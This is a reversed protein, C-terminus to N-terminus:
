DTTVSHPSVSYENEFQQDRDGHMNRVYNNFHDVSVVAGIINHRYYYLLSHIKKKENPKHLWIGKYKKYTTMELRETKKTDRSKEKLPTIAQVVSRSHSKSNVRGSFLSLKGQRKRRFIVM